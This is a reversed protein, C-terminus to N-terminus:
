NTKKEHGSDTANARRRALWAQISAEAGQAGPQYYTRDTLAGPLYAQPREPPPRSPDASDPQGSYVDHAYVYGRGYELDRMLRTPANRLHLPVPDNRTARVDEQVAAYASNLANSKPATALHVVAQALALAGEPMGIFHVAQQAAVCVMLAQPDAMGVDESAFRILRRVIYLPDEGSELMRGLWYLAADPDSGRLSKHLASIINYHEEGSKDYLGARRQVADEVVALTITWAGDAEAPAVAAALELANLASRADGNAFGALYALADDNVTIGQEGLGREADALARRLVMSIQADDLAHLTFVRSRSLLAANVEISPNETTAGILTVTGREVHPLIADQQAKNFRHIEDIFLITRRGTARLLKAADEVVRRLDAVGATRRMTS